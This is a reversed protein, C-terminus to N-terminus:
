FTLKIGASFTSFLPYSDVGSGISEPDVDKIKSITLLNAGRVFIRTGRAGIIKLSNAPLNYALEINQIKFYGGKVLWFTSSVFNNNVKNYTLRPYAEGINNKVFESYNSDGWGNQFYSNTLPIDYFARGTGLAFFEFGKYKLTLNLAYFLRPATHGIPSYDSENVVRDGNMDKYKLDGAHLAQDFLQPIVLTEANDKFKGLYTLGFYTDTPQGQSFQYTNPYAPEDLKINKSNQLTANGSFIYKVQGIKDNYTLGMEIGQYRIKSFNLLPITTSVGVVYPINSSPYTYIGDRLMNYFTLDVGLKQNIFLGDIGTSIERRKEWGLDPNGTRNPTTVYVSSERQNGFWQNTSYPGFSTGGGSNWNDRYMFPSLFSESGLTGGEVRLKLYNIWKINKLFSEESIVWALGASPSLDFRNGVAFSSSGGYNLVGNFIYKNNYSYRGTLVGTQIRRPEKTGSQAFKSIYYTLSTQLDSKGLSKEYNLSEYFSLRQSYYSNLLSESTSQTGTRVKSLLITDNGAPTLAPTAIYAYYENAKGIRMQNYSNFGIFSKSKLGPLIKKLDIDIGADASGIRSSENYYGNSTLDAVPNRGYNSSVGYFPSNGSAPDFPAAYIPFAIPPTSIINGIATNFELGTTGTGYKPSRRYSLGGFFDFKVKILENLQIDINTRANLRNYDSISGIKFIDGDGDYGVYAFYQVKENGGSSSVNARKFSMSNNLMMARFDTSPHYYDYANGKAYAEISSETYNALLGDNLRAQNNLKAYDAGSVWNPIRDIMAVGAEVNVNLIRENQKGRKTKIFVIGDAATAGFMAKGVIDKVITISEIENPDLPMETINSPVDDIIYMMSQGRSGVGVKESFGIRGTSELRSVGPQGDSEVVEVGNALGTLANRLDTSPYKELQFSKLVVPSGTLNRKKITIFPLEVNDDSSLYLQSKVLKVTNGSLLTELLFTSKEYGNSSVTVFDGAHGKIAYKGNEDTEDHLIGEGLVIQAKPVAKGFEDTVVLSVDIMLTKEKKTAKKQASISGALFFCFLFLVIIKYNTLKNEIKM